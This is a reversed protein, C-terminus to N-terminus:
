ACDGRCHGEAIDIPERDYEYIRRILDKRNMIFKGNKTVFWIFNGDIEALKSCFTRGSDLEVICTKGILQNLMKEENM